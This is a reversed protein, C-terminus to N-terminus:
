SKFCKLKPHRFNTGHVVVMGLNETESAFPTNDVYLESFESELKERLFNNVDSLITAVKDM